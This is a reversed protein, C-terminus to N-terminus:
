KRPERPPSVKRIAECLKRTRTVLEGADGTFRAHMGGQCDAVIAAAEAIPMRGLRDPVDNRRALTDFFVFALLEVLGRGDLRKEVDAHPLGTGLWRRRLAEAAAAELALRCFGPVVRAALGDPVGEAKVVATADSLHQEVPGKAQGVVVHSAAKRTVRLQRFPLGLVRFSNELRDDHTFVIVQRSAGVRSLVEALGDVRATDMAQVPDDVLVFGFPSQPLQVRPLFLSLTMANLEGQSMVGLAPAETGDVEVKLAVRQQIGQGTLEIDTLAVNSHRSIINWCAIADEKIPAFREDRHRVLEDEMWARARELDPLAANGQAVGRAEEVWAALATAFPRWVEQRHRLEDAALAQLDVFADSLAPGHEAVAAGRAAHEAPLAGHWAQWREHLAVAPVWGAEAGRTLSAPVDRVMVDLSRRADALQRTATRAQSARAEAGALAETASVRWAEDLPRPAGCVPCTEHTERAACDLAAALLRALDDARGSADDRVASQADVAGALVGVADALAEKSFPVTDGAIAVLHGADEGGAGDAALAALAELDPERPRLLAAAKTFRPEEPHAAAEANAQKALERAVRRSERGQKTRINVANALVQRVAEYREIGLGSLLAQYVRGPGDALMDGLESYSLFPRYAALAAPWASAELDEAVGAQDTYTSRGSELASPDSWTREVQAGPQGEQTLRVLIRPAQAGHVNRWGKTWEKSGKGKWRESTGTFAVEVAEAFSSKGSGNRGAVLTVGPGPELPLRSSPGVGRFSRIEIDALYVRAVAGDEPAATTRTPLPRTAAGDAIVEDLAEAGEVAALTMWVMADGELGDELLRELLVDQLGNMM